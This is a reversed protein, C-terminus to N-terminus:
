RGPRAAAIAARALPNARALTKAVCDPDPNLPYLRDLVKCADQAVREVRTMMSAAGQETALDLDGYLLQMQVTTVTVVAGTFPDRTEPAPLPVRRPAEVIIEQGGDQATAPACAFVALLPALFPRVLRASTIM